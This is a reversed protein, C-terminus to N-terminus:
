LFISRVCLKYVVWARSEKSELRTVKQPGAVVMVSDSRWGEMGPWNRLVDQPKKQEWLMRSRYANEATVTVAVHHTAKLKGLDRAVLLM